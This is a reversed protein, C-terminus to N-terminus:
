YGARKIGHFQAGVDRLNHVIGYACGRAEYTWSSGWGDGSEWIMIHGAGNQNYVLADGKVLSSRSVTTWQSSDVNFNITSYPHSDVTPDTNTSPVQWVKGAYGSCDAGSSGSHTCNPCDGTCVGANTSTLGNPIWRGHGWWYSFGVGSKAREIAADRKTNTVPPSSVLTLYNGSAWGDIGNYRVNYFSGSPSTTNITTVQGGLPIVLRVQYSTSPGTRLNLAATTKLVSGVPVTGTLRSTSTAITDENAGVLLDDTATQTATGACAVMVGCAAAVLSTKM